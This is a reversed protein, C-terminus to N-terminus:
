PKFSMRDTYRFEATLTDIFVTKNAIKDTDWCGWNSIVCHM